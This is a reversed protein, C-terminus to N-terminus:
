RRPDRVHRCGGRNRRWAREQMSDGSGGAFQDVRGGGVGVAQASAAADGRTRTNVMPRESSPRSMTMSAMASSFPIASKCRRFAAVAASASGRLVSQRRRLPQDRLGPRNIIEVCRQMRVFGAGGLRHQFESIPQGNGLLGHNAPDALVHHHEDIRYGIGVAAVLLDFPEVPIELAPRVPVRQRPLRRRVPGLVREHVDVAIRVLQRVLGGLGDAAHEEFPVGHDHVIQVFAHRQQHGPVAGSGVIGVDIGDGEAFEQRQAKVLDFGHGAEPHGPDHVHFKPSPKACM